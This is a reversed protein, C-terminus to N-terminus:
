GENAANRKEVFNTTYAVGNIKLDNLILIQRSASIFNKVNYSSDVRSYSSSKPYATPLKLKPIVLKTVKGRKTSINIRESVLREARKTASIIREEADSNYVNLIVKSKGSYKKFENKRVIESIMYNEYSKQFPVIEDTNNIHETIKKINQIASNIDKDSNNEMESFFDTIGIKKLVLYGAGNKYIVSTSQAMYSKNYIEAITNFNPSVKEYADFFAKTQKRFMYSYNKIEKFYFELFSLPVEKSVFVEAYKKIAQQFIAQVIVMNAPTSLFTEDSPLEINYLQQAIVVM